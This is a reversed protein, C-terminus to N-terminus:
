DRGAQCGSRGPLKSPDVLLEKGGRRCRLPYALNARMDETADVESGICSEGTARRWDVVKDGLALKLGKIKDVDEDSIPENSKMCLSGATAGKPYSM